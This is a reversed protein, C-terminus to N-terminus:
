IKLDSPLNRIEEVDIHEERLWKVLSAASHFDSCGKMIPGSYAIRHKMEKGYVSKRIGDYWYVQKELLFPRNIVTM